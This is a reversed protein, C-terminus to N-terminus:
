EIFQEKAFIMKNQRSYKKSLIIELDDTTQAMQKVLDKPREVEDVIRRNIENESKMKDYENSAESVSKPMNKNLSNIIDSIKKDIEKILDNNKNEDEMENEAESSSDEGSIKDGKSNCKDCSGEKSSGGKTKQKIEYQKILEYIDCAAKFSSRSIHENDIDFINYKKLIDYIQVFLEDYAKILGADKISNIYKPYRIAAFLLSIIDEINHGTYTMDIMERTQKDFVNYKLKSIFNIYGPFKTGLKREIMEDEIINWIHKIPENMLKNHIQVECFKFDTYLCHCLEHLLLGIYLDLKDYKTKVNEPISTGIIIKDGDTCASEMYPSIHIVKHYNMVSAIFSLKSLLLSRNELIDTIVYDNYLLRCYNQKLLKEWDIKIDNNRATYHENNRNFWDQSLIYM